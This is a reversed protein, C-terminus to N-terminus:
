VSCVRTLAAVCSQSATLSVSGDPLELRVKDGRTSLVQAAKFGEEEDPIWLWKKSDFARTKEMVDKSASPRLYVSPDDSM